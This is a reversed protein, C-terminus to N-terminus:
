RLWNIRGRAFMPDSGNARGLQQYLRDLRTQLGNRDISRSAGDATVSSVLSDTSQLLSEIADIEAQISSASRAM